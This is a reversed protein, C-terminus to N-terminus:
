TGRLRPNRIGDDDKASAHANDYGDFVTQMDGENVTGNDHWPHFASVTCRYCANTERITM